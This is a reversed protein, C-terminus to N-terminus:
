SSSFFNLSSLQPLLFHCSYLERCSHLAVSPTAPLPSPAFYSSCNLALSARPSLDRSPLFRSLFFRVSVNSTFFSSFICSFDSPSFLPLIPTIPDLLLYIPPFRNLSYILCFFFLLFFFCGISLRNKWLRIPSFSLSTQTSALRGARSSVM